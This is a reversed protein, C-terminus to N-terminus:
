PADALAAGALDSWFATFSLRCRTALTRPDSQQAIAVRTERCDDVGAAQCTRAFRQHPHDGAPDNRPGWLDEPAAPLEDAEPLGLAAWANRDALLWSESTSKPLCIIAAPGDPLRQFGDSIQGHHRHWDKDDPSDTDVMFVVADYRELKAKLRAALAKHGHGAPLPRNTQRQRDTLFIQDRRIATMELAQGPKAMRALLTQLWGPLPMQRKTRSDWADPYGIDAPGEGVILVRM